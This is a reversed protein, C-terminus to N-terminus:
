RYLTPKSKHELSEEGFFTDCKSIQTSASKPVLGKNMHGMALMSNLNDM